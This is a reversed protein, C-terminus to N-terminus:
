RVAIAGYNNMYQHGYGCYAGCTLTFDGRRDATLTTVSPETADHPLVMGRNGMMGGHMGTGMHGRGAPVIALSHDPYQEEADELAEHLYEENPAPIQEENRGAELQEHGPLNEQIADPLSTIAETAEVGFGVIRITSGAELTLQDHEVGDEDLLLFGWHYAGIYLTRDVSRGGLQPPNATCGALGAFAVVGLGTLFERRTGPAAM